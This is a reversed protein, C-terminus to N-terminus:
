LVPELSKDKEMQVSFTFRDYGHLFMALATGILIIHPWVAEGFFVLSMSLFALFFLSAFRIEFGIAFCVGLLIETLMAGLVLFVPDFPFYHTLNYKSVVELALAGHIFKAYVSAYILSSGFLVRMILFKYAHFSPSIVRAAIQSLRKNAFITHAGGFIAITIAEGLYTAYNLMYAGFHVALGIFFAVTFMAAIRPFLGFALMAGAVILCFSVLHELSGFTPGLPIEIGFVAHYYGSAMLALGLTAQAVHPAFKKLYMLAPDILREIPRSISVYFVILILITFILGWVIFQGLHDRMSQMFDPRPAQMATNIESHDLVYVEHASVQPVSIRFFTAIALLVFASKLIQKM